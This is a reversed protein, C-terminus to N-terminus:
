GARSVEKSQKKGPSFIGVDWTCITRTEDNEVDKRPVGEKGGGAEEVCKVVTKEKQRCTDTSVSRVCTLRTHKIM